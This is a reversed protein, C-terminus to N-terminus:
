ITQVVSIANIKIVHTYQFQQPKVHLYSLRPSLQQGINLLYFFKQSFFFPLFLLFQNDNFFFKELM